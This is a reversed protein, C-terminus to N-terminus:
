HVIKFLCQHLNNIKNAIRFIGLPDLYRLKIESFVLVNSM